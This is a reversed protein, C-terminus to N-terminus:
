RAAAPPPLRRVRRDLRPGRPVRAGGRRARDADRAVLARPPARPVRPGPAAALPARRARGGRVGAAHHPVARGLGGDRGVARLVGETRRAGPARLRRRRRPAEAPRRRPRARRRRASASADRHAARPLGLWAPLARPPRQDDDVSQHHGQAGQEPLPGHAPRRQRVAPRRPACLAPRGRAVKGASSRSPRLLTIIRTRHSALFGHLRAPMGPRRRAQWDYHERALMRALPPESQTPNPYMAFTTQPLNLSSKANAKTACRRACSRLSAVRRM